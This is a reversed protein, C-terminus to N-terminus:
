RPPERQQDGNPRDRPVQSRTYHRLSVPKGDPATWNAETTHTHRWGTREYLAIAASREDNTVELTLHLGHDAAWQQAHQLLGTAITQRRAAPVVFLRSVEAIPQTPSEDATNPPTVRQLAVHGVVAGIDAQAIWAHLTDMPCLWRHPDAPWNLPYGDFHHVVALAEVCQDLDAPQRDRIKM